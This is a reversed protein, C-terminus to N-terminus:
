KLGQLSSAISISLAIIGLTSASFSVLDKALIFKDRYKQEPVLIADGVNIVKHKAEVWTATGRRRIRVNRRDAIRSFGGAARIYDDVTWGPHYTVLGPLAVAGWIQIEASEQRIVILDENKLIIDHDSHPNKLAKHFDVAVRDGTTSLLAKLYSIEEPWITAPDISLTQHLKVMREPDSEIESTALPARPRVIYSVALFADNTLGGAQRIIDSLHTSDERIPYTGPYLVEGQVTVSYPIHYEPITLFHLRDDGKLPFDISKRLSIIITDIHSTKGAFRTIIVRSSDVGTRTGGAAILLKALNDGPVYDYAGPWNVAGAMAITKGRKRINIHMNDSLLPNTEIDGSNYFAALDAITQVVGNKTVEINRRYRLETTEVARELVDSVRMAGNAAHSGPRKVNGTVYVNFRRIHALAVSVTANRYVAQCRQILESRLDGLTQDRVEFEGVGPVILKRDASVSVPISTQVGGQITIMFIDGPGPYYLSDHIEAQALQDPSLSKLSISESASSKTSEAFQARLASVGAIDQARSVELCVCCLTAMVTVLAKKYKQMVMRANKREVM